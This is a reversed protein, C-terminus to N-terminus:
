NLKQLKMLDPMSAKVKLKGSSYAKLGSIKSRMVELFTETSMKYSIEAKEVEGKVPEDTKGDVLKIYWKEDTDTFHYQM